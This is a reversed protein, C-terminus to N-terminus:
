TGAPGYRVRDAARTETRDDGTRHIGEARIPVLEKSGMPVARIGHGPASPFASPCSRPETRKQAMATFVTDSTGLSIVATGPQSAGMGILSSPNEGTFAVVKTGEAFSYKTFFYGAIEGIFTTSVVPPELKDSLGPAAADLLARSWQGPASNLLNM